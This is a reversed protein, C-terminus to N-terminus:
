ETEKHFLCYMFRQEGGWPTCHTEARSDRLQFDKGLEHCLSEPSYRVVELGSCKEPSDQAFTAIVLHGGPELATQVTHVYRQRDTPDTLFHFVARDHWLDFAALPLSIQTIDGEIWEVEAVCGGLRERARQLAVTSIDLVTPRVFGLALLDDVLTSDGGGVDILRAQLGVAARQILDLSSQLHPQHWTLQESVKTQFICDWHTKRDM